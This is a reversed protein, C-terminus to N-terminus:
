SVVTMAQPQRTADAPSLTAAGVAGARGTLEIFLSELSRAHREMVRVAIGACGLAIVYADLADTDASVELAADASPQVKVRVGARHFALDLAARDDSTRLVHVAAPALSRLDDVTGTFVVRGSNIVTLDTCLEEVETM